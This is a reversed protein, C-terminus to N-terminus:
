LTSFDAPWKAYTGMILLVAADACAKVLTYEGSASTSTSGASRCLSQRDHVEGLLVDVGEAGLRM